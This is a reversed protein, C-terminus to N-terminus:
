FLQKTVHGGMQTFILNTHPWVIFLHMLKILIPVNKTSTACGMQNLFKKKLKHAGSYFYGHNQPCIFHNQSIKAEEVANQMKDAAVFHLM